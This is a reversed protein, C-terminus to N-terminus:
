QRPAIFRSEERAVEKGTAKDVVVFEILTKSADLGAAAPDVELTLSLEEVKNVAIQYESDIDMNVGDIGEVSLLYTQAQQTMNMMKVTYYNEVTDNPTVQYLSGRDREIDLEFPTRTMMAYSFGSIMVLLLTAYGILRPRVFHTTQGELENETTYRILGKPKDLKEMISDCADICLACGICQYQLGDRIDIGTPCVQVCLSCDVCDGLQSQQEVDSAKKSRKGRPEGRNYDYSVALTDRDYMVSQFRAYPCMYICVQERMWGANIYTAVTFFMIWFAAWGGISFALLDPVLERIPTFYGVFTVGTWVSIVLWSLHKIAKKQLKRASLPEKDLKIRQNRSGEVREEIWMFIFSWASQPCTYGCWIRGAMNTITFLGYACIILLTSLLIFDQPWFTAGFIHFQRAPLDFLVAQRDGWNIWATGYYALMLAWLSYTRIKQFLGHIERVYIKERKQYMSQPEPTVNKVPIEDSM